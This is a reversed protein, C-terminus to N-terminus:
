VPADAPAMRVKPKRAIAARLVKGVQEASYPKRVFEFGHAHDSALVHSYGSTLVVPLEPHLERLRKALEIGGMGPMVVDSFVADFRFPVAEIEALAAEATQTLVTGYGLDHLIQTCFAGIEINDEVVLICRDAQELPQGDPEPVAKEEGAGAEAQPLYLTFTSGRGVVSAVDVDGGSQKAFGIVQSLGLGTGKGVEKTTFFPEFIQTLREKAIGSGTDTAAVVVFDNPSGAHGRIPPKTRGCSLAITLTGEGAMADRANVVLNVLATEFQTPDARVFCPSEPMERVIRIRAGTLSDLMSAVGALRERADFVEPRLSQRRAFALLQATLKSAREVTDSVADMYRTRREESLNPRRLFDVSSHIITLLNNFDHAVGGTLQGIAEMKQAQVLADQAEALERTREAVRQELAENMGQLADRLQRDAVARREVSRALRTTLGALWLALVIVLLATGTEAELLGARVAHLQLLGLFLPALVTAPMLHRTLTGADGGGLVSTVWPRNPRSLLVGLSLTGLTLATVLAMRSFPGGQHFAGLGYAYGLGGVAAVVFAFLAAVAGLLRLRRSRADQLLLGSAAGVAGIATALAMGSGPALPAFVLRQVWDDLRFSGPIAYQLGGGLAIAAAAGALCRGVRRSLRASERRAAFLLAMGLMLTALASLVVMPAHGPLLRRMAPVDFWWGALVTLSVGTGFVGCARAIRRARAAASMTRSPAAYPLKSREAEVM